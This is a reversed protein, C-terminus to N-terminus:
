QFTTTGRRAVRGRRFLFAVGGLAGIFPLAALAINLFGPSWLVNDAELAEADLYVGLPVLFWGPGGAALATPALPGDQVLFWFGAVYLALGAVVLGIPLRETARLHYGATDTM